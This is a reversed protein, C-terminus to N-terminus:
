LKRLNPSKHTQTENAFRQRKNVDRMGISYHFWGPQKRWM